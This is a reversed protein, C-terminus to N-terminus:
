DGEEEDRQVASEASVDRVMERWSSLSSKIDFTNHIPWTVTTCVFRREVRVVLEGLM